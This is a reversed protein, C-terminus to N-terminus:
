DLEIRLERKNGHLHLLFDELLSRGIVIESFAVNTDIEIIRSFALAPIDIKGRATRLQLFDGSLTQAIPVDEPPVETTQLGLTEFITFPIALYGDYGTDVLAQCENAEPYRKSEMANKIIVRVYPALIESFSSPEYPWVVPM